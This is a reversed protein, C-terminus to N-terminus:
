MKWFYTHLVIHLKETNVNDSDCIQIEFGFDKKCCSETIQSKYMSFRRLGLGEFLSFYSDFICCRRHSGINDSLLQSITLSPLPRVPVEKANDDSRPIEWSQQPQAFGPVLISRYFFILLIQCHYFRPAYGFNDRGIPAPSPAGRIIHWPSAVM